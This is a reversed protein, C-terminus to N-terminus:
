VVLRVGHPDIRGLVRCPSYDLYACFLPLQQCRGVGYLGAVVRRIQEALLLSEQIEDVIFVPSVERCFVQGYM